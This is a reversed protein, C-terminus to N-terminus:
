CSVNRNKLCDWLWIRGITCGKIIYVHPEKHQLSSIVTFRVTKGGDFASIYISSIWYVYLYLLADACPRDKPWVLGNTLYLRTHSLPTSTSGLSFHQLTNLNIVTVCQLIHVTININHVSQTLLLTKGANCLCWSYCVTRLAVDNSYHKHEM